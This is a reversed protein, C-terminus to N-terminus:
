SGQRVFRRSRARQTGSRPPRTRQRSWARRSGRCGTRLADRCTVVHGLGPVLCVRRESAVLRGGDGVEVHRLRHFDGIGVTAKEEVANMGHDPGKGQRRRMPGSSQGGFPFCSLWTARDARRIAVVDRARRVRSHRGFLQGNQSEHGVAQGKIGHRDAYRHTLAGEAAAKSTDAVSQSHRV